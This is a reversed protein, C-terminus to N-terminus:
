CPQSAVLDTDDAAPVIIGYCRQLYHCSCNGTWPLLINETNIKSVGLSKKIRPGETCVKKIDKCIGPCSSVVVKPSPVTLAELSLREACAM